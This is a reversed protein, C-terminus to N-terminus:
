GVPQLIEIAVEEVRRDVVKRVTLQVNDLRLVEGTEPLRGLTSFILGGLTEYDDSLPLGISLRANLEDVRLSGPAVAHREDTVALQLPKEDLDFEDDIDGVIQELVDEITVLGATGGYEDLVIAIHTRHARFEKLLETCSKSAPVFWPQRLARRVPEEKPVRLLDKVHVVGVVHDVDGDIVPYRSRGTRLVLARAEGVTSEVPIADMDTRPTMISRVELARLGVVKEIMDAQHEVLHGEREGEEVTALIETQYAEAQKEPTSGGAARLLRRFAEVPPSILRGLGLVVPMTPRVLTELVRVSLEAPLVRCFLTIWGFAVACALLVPLAPGASPWWRPVWQQALLVLVSVLGMQSAVRLVVLATEGKDGEAVLRRLRERAHPGDGPQAIRTLPLSQWGQELVALLMSLLALALTGGLGHFGEALAVVAVATPPALAPM